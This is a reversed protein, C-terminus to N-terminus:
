PVVCASMMTGRQSTRAWERGREREALRRMRPARARCRGPIPALSEAADPTRRRGPARGIRVQAGTEHDASCRSERLCTRRPNRGAPYFLPTRPRGRRAMVASATGQEGDGLREEADAQETEPRLVQGGRRHQEAERDRGVGPKAGQDRREVVRGKGRDRHAHRSGHQDACESVHEEGRPPEEFAERLGVGGERPVPATSSAIARGRAAMSSRPSGGPAVGPAAPASRVMGQSPSRTQLQTTLPWVGAGHGRRAGSPRRRSRSPTRRARRGPRGDARRCDRIGWSLFCRIDCGALWPSKSAHIVSPDFRAAGLSGGVLDDPRPAPLPFRYPASEGERIPPVNM